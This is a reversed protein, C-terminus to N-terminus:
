GVRQKVNRAATARPAFALAVWYVKMTLVVGVLMAPWSLAAVMRPAGVLLTVMLGIKVLEWLFFRAVRATPGSASPRTLGRAFVAAPIVVALAGYAASWGVIQKGTLGWAALAVLFGVVVQGAVVWWLSVPPNEERLRRAEDATLQKFPLEEDTEKWTRPLPLVTKM